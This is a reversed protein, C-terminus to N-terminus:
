ARAARQVLPHGSAFVEAPTGGLVIRGGDLLLIRDAVAGAFDLDHTVLLLTSGDRSALQQIAERVEHVLLPDLASTPEDLLLLEPAVALARAIAVRQQQGGSLEGPVCRALDEVGVRRLAARAIAEAEARPKRLAHLPGTMANGLVDLHPFLHLQQFVLGVQRRLAALAAQEARDRVSAAPRGRSVERGRLLVRGEQYDELGNLCRLLTSKGCGNPGLLAVVESRRLALDIGDLVRRGDPWRKRLGQVELVVEARADRAAM